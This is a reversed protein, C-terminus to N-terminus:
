IFYLRKRNDYKNIFEDIANKVSDYDYDHGTIFGGRKIIKYSLELDNKVGLYSHDADIYIIDIINKDITELFQKTTSKVVIVNENNIYKNKLIDFYLSMDNVTEGMSNGRGKRFIDVLYLKSPHLIKLIKESYKGTFVGLEVVVKNKPLLNLLEIRDKIIKM